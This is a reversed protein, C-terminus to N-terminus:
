NVYKKIDYRAASFVSFWSRRGYYYFYRARQGVKSSREMKLNEKVIKKMEEEVKSLDDDTFTEARDFDYYFGDKISPGIALKTEPYLRKVAQALIHAATHRLAKKGIEDGFQHEEITGDSMIIKM